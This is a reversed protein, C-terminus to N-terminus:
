TWNKAALGLVQIHETLLMHAEMVFTISYLSAPQNDEMEGMM